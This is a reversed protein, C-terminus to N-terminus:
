IGYTNKKKVENGQEGSSDGEYFIEVDLITFLYPIVSRHKYV